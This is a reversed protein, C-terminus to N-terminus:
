IYEQKGVVITEILDDTVFNLFLLFFGTDYLRIYIKKQCLILM